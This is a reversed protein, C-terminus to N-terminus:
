LFLIFYILLSLFLINYVTVIFSSIKFITLKKLRSIISNILDLFILILIGSIFKENDHFIITSSIVFIIVTVRILFYYIILKNIEISYKKRERIEKKIMQKEHKNFNQVFLLKRISKKFNLIFDIESMLFILATLLVIFM